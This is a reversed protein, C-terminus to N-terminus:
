KNNKSNINAIYQLIDHRSLKYKYIRIVTTAAVVGHVNARTECGDVVVVAGQPGLSSGLCSDLLKFLLHTMMSCFPM